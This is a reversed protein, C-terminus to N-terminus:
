VRSRPGWVRSGSVRSRPGLGTLSGPAIGGLRSRPWTLGTGPRRFRVFFSIKSFMKIHRTPKEDSKGQLPVPSTTRPIRPRRQPTGAAQASTGATHPVAPHHSTPLLSHTSCGLRPADRSSGFTCCLRCFNSPLMYTSHLPSNRLSVGIFYLLLYLTTFRPVYLAVYLNRADGFHPGRHAM